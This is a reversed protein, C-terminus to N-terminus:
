KLEIQYYKEPSLRKVVIDESPALHFYGIKVKDTIESANIRKLYIIIKKNISDYDIRPPAKEFAIAVYLGYYWSIEVRYNDIDYSEFLARLEKNSELARRHKRCWESQISNGDQARMNHIVYWSVSINLISYIAIISFPIIYKKLNM